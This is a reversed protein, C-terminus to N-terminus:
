SKHETTIVNVLPASKLPSAGTEEDQNQNRELYSTVCSKVLSTPHSLVSPGVNRAPSNTELSVTPCKATDSASNFMATQMQLIEGLQDGSVKSKKSQRTRRTGQPPSSVESIVSESIPTIPSNSSCPTTKQKSQTTPTEPSVSDDIVLKEDDSDGTFAPQEDSEQAHDQRQSERLLPQTTQETMPDDMGILSTNMEELSSSSINVLHGSSRNSKSLLQSGTSTKSEIVANQENQIKHVKSTKIPTLEGFTELDTLDVEFDLGTNEFSVLNRQPSEQNLFLFCLIM